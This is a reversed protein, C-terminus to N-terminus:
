KYKGAGMSSSELYMGQALRLADQADPWGRLRQLYPRINRAHNAHRQAQALRTGGISEALMSGGPAHAIRYWYLAEPVVQLKYGRLVARAWLEWDEHGVNADETFGGLAEFAERRVLASADGFVNRFVGLAAADGLPLWRESTPEADPPPSKADGGGAVSGRWARQHGSGMADAEDEDAAAAALPASWDSSAPAGASSFFKAATPFGAAEYDFGDMSPVQLGCVCDDEARGCICKAGGFMSHKLWM